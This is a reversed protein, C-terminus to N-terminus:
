MRVWAFSNFIRRTGLSIGMGDRKMVSMRSSPFLCAINIGGSILCSSLQSKKIGFQKKWCNGQRGTPIEKVNCPCGRYVQLVLFHPRMLDFSIPRETDYPYNLSM